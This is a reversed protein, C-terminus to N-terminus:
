SIMNVARITVWLVVVSGLGYLLGMRVDKRISGFIDKQLGHKVSILYTAVIAVALLTYLIHQYQRSIFYMATFDGALAAFIGLLIHYDKKSLVQKRAILRRLHVMTLYLLLFFPLYGFLGAEGLIHIYSNHAVHHENAYDQFLGYGIGFLPNSKFMELGQGWLISRDQGAFAGGGFRSPALLTVVGFGFVATLYRKIGRMSVLVFAGIMGCAAIVGGRSNTCWAGYSSLAIGSVAFLKQIPNASTIFSIFFLPIGVVLMLCLDNPDDFTGFARAQWQIEGTEANIGRASPLKGGFGVGTNHQLISHVALFMVGILIAILLTNFGQYNKVLVLMLIFFFLVKGFEQFVMMAGYINLHSVYSLMLGVLFLFSIKLQPVQQWIIRSRRLLTPAGVLGIGIAGINVLPWQFIPEFWDMPRIMIVLIYLGLLLSIM